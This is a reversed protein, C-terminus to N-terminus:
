RALHEAGVGRSEPDFRRGSRAPDEHRAFFAELREGLEDEVPRLGPQGLANRREGPDAVLDFLEDPGHGYRRVLKHTRTRVCRVPGYEGHYVDDWSQDEGRLAPLYSAGPLRADERWAPVGAYDLLSCFLDCHDVLRDVVRGAPLQGPHNWVLPVRISAEYMNKPSTGNGKGYVGHQGVALGHDSTYVVLTRERLRLTDLADLLRGIGEDIHNVAAYYQALAQDPRVGRAPGNDVSQPPAEAVPSPPHAEYPEVLRRPHGAWPTHTGIYGVTLFFPEEAAHAARLLRIAQETVVDTKFGDLYLIRGQDSYRQRGAHGGQPQGIAFWDRFGPRPHESCGLHWKGSLMCRYGARELHRPLTPLGELWDRGGVEPEQERLWDHVGHQSALLGTFVSARAPSCVPTPTFAHDCRVGERALHDLNPTRVDRNGYCGNAWRGHDDTLFLLINPQSM